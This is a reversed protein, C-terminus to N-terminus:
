ALKGRRSLDYDSMQCTGDDHSGNLGAYDPFRVFNVAPRGSISPLRKVFFAIRSESGGLCPKILLKQNPKIKSPKM